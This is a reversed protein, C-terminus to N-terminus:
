ARVNTGCDWSDQCRYPSQGHSRQGHLVQCTSTDESSGSRRPEKMATASSLSSELTSNMLTRLATESHWIRGVFSQLLSCLDQVEVLDQLFFRQFSESDTKEQKEQEKETAGRPVSILSCPSAPGGAGLTP